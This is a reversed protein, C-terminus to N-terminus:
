NYLTNKSLLKIERVIRKADILDDFANPVQPFLNIINLLLVIPVKKIAVKNQNEKNLASCVVGYAGHGIQKIYEYKDDVVFTTGESPFVPLFSFFSFFVEANLLTNERPFWLKKQSKPTRKPLSTRAQPNTM